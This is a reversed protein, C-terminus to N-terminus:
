ATPPETPPASAWASLVRQSAPHILSPGTIL